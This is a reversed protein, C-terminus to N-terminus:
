AAPCLPQKIDNATPLLSSVPHAHLAAECAAPPDDLVPRHQQKLTAVVTMTTEVFRSGDASHTGFRGKCWLGGPRIAREAMNNTPQVDAHRVFPCLAQRRKLIERCVGKTKEGGDDGGTRRALEMRSIVSRCISADRAGIRGTLLLHRLGEACRISALVRHPM